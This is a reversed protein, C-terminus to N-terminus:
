LKMPRGTGELAESPSTNPPTRPTRAVAVPSADRATVSITAAKRSSSAGGSTELEYLWELRDDELLLPWCWCERLREEETECGSRRLDTAQLHKSASGPFCGRVKGGETWDLCGGEDLSAQQVYMDEGPHAVCVCLWLCQYNCHNQRHLSHDIKEGRERTSLRPITCTYRRRVRCAM